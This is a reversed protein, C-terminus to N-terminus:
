LCNQIIICIKAFMVVKVRAQMKSWIRCTHTFECAVPVCVYLRVYAWYISLLCVCIHGQSTPQIKLLADDGNEDVSFRTNLNCVTSLWALNHPCNGTQPISLITM